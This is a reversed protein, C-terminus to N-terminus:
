EGGFFHEMVGDAVAPEFTLHPDRLITAAIDPFPMGYSDNLRELPMSTRSLPTAGGAHRLLGLSARELLDLSGCDIEENHEPVGLERYVGLCCFGGAAKMAGRVQKFNDEALETIWECALEIQTDIDYM